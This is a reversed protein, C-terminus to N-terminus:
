MEQEAFKVERQTRALDGLEVGWSRVPEAACTDSGDLHDNEEARLAFADV